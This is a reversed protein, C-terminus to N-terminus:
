GHGRKDKRKGRNGGSKGDEDTRKWKECRALLGPPASPAGACDTTSARVFKFKTCSLRLFFGNKAAQTVYLLGEHLRFKSWFGLEQSGEWGAWDISAGSLATEALM